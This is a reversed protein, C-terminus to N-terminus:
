SRALRASLTKLGRHVSVKVASPSLGTRAGAESVSLGDLKTLRLAEAQKAPLTELLRGLDRAAMAGEHRADAFLDHADDLEATPRLRRHRYNDILKHRAIAHVWPTFPHSPDYTARKLHIAILTEQVLDEVEAPDSLRRALYGRLHATLTSLLRHYAAADGALARVM